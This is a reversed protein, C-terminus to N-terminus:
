KRPTNYPTIIALNATLVNSNSLTFASSALLVAV